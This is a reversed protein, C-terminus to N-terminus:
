NEIKKKEAWSKDVPSCDMEIELPVIIWKWAKPLDECTVRHIVQKVHELEDPHVDLIIADHIQGIIRSDWKEEQMIRDIEIFAWLLCHFASGQISYNTVDNKRMVGGCRFGTLSDVYGKKTYLTWWRDKWTAYVPFRNEWFDKEIKELHNEFHKLSKIGHSIMHDALTGEVMPIGQGEKWGGQPLQGWVCAMSVACNKYYDGYFEPFVFGNKAADRLIKHSPLTKDFDDIMFIQKVMDGHMDSKPNHLYKLMTPDKHYCAAIKVEISNYDAELLQHGLRPYIARRVLQMSEVDRKPINQFNPNSSSSRFTVVTNLNFFPHVYGNVQERIFPKLYTDRNKKLKRIELIIDIEPINLKQLTEKDTAGKGSATEKKIKIGLEKYLFNSLQTSSNYNVEKETMKNWKKYFKTDRLDEELSAIKNTLEESKRTVYDLDVRIGAREARAFALIGKHFLNYADITLPHISTM